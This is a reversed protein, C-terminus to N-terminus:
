PSPSRHCDFCLSTLNEPDHSGWMAFPVIHHVELSVGTAGCRQCTHDDREIIAQRKRMGLRNRERNVVYEAHCAKEYLGRSPVYQRGCPCGYVSFALSSLPSGVPCRAPDIAYHVCSHSHLCSSLAPPQISHNM